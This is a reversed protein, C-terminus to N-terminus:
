HSARDGWITELRRDRGCGTRYLRYRIPNKEYYDQHSSEVPFFTASSLIETAIQKKPFEATVRARSAEALTRQSDNAVFIASRYSPGKDCFQGGPDFPDINLWFLDLLQKYSVIQPDFTVLIAEYHGDHRGSYTPNPHSGGTFGSVAESVGATEQFLAEVCWFCGGAFVAEDARAGPASVLGTVCLALMVAAVAKMFSGTHVDSEKAM